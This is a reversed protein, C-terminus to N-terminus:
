RSLRRNGYGGHKTISVSKVRAVMGVHEFVHNQQRQELVKEIVLPRFDGFKPLCCRLEPGIQRLYESVGAPSVGFFVVAGYRFLVAVGTTGRGAGLGGAPSGAIGLGDLAGILEVVLPAGGPREAAGLAGLDIGTGALVAQARFAHAAASSGAASTNDPAPPSESM